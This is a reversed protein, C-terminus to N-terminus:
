LFGDPDSVDASFSLSNWEPLDDRDPTAYYTGTARLPSMRDPM